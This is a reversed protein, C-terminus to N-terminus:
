VQKKKEHNGYLSKFVACKQIGRLKRTIELGQAFRAKWEAALRVEMNPWAVARGSGISRSKEPADLIKKEERRWDGLQSESFGSLAAVRRRSIKKLVM